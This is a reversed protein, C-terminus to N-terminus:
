KNAFIAEMPEGANKMYPKNIKKLTYASVSNISLFLNANRHSIKLFVNPHQTINLIPPQNESEGCTTHILMGMKAQNANDVTTLEHNTKTSNLDRCSSTTEVLYTEERSFGIKFYMNGKIIYQWNIAESSFFYIKM